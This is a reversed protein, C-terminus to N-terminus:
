GDTCAGEGLRHGLFDITRAGLVCKTARVTFNARQLWRFLRESDECPGGLNSHPGVPQRRLGCGLGDRVDADERRPDPNDRLEDNRIADEPIRLSPGNDCVGDESYRGAPCTDVLLGQESLYRDNEMSQFMDPPPIMSHPDFVTMHM